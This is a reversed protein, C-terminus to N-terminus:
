IRWEGTAYKVRMQLIEKLMSASAAVTGSTSQVLKSGEKEEWNIAVETLPVGLERARYLVEVDHTWRRLNLSNYLVLGTDLTMLKLGCQTDSVQLNGCVLRVCTRFGWRLVSRFRGTGSYGRDGVVLGLESWFLTQAGGLSFGGVPLRRRDDFLRALSDVMSNLCAIDGSGDADAVLVLHGSSEDMLPMYERRCREIEQLGKAIAEGKGRNYKLSICSIPISSKSASIRSVVDATGDVSGDDVVLFDTQNCWTPSGAIWDWYSDLTDSIRLSEEYAPLLITLRVAPTTGDSQLHLVFRHKNQEKTPAGSSFSQRHGILFAVCIEPLFVLFLVLIRNM